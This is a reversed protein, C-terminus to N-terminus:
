NELLAILQAAFDELTQQSAVGYILIANGEYEFVMLYDKSKAPTSKKPNEFISVTKGSIKVEGTQKNPGIQFQLWTPNIEFGQTYAIFEGSSNVFGAYWSAVGNASGFRASNSYWDVPITPVAIKGPAQNSAADAIAVYDVPEIRNSDDRPVGLVLLLVLGLTAVLSLVLNILTQRARRKAAADSL